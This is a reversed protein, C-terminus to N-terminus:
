EGTGRSLETVLVAGAGLPGLICNKFFTEVTLCDSRLSETSIGGVGYRCQAWEALRGFASADLELDDLLHSGPVIEQDPAVKSLHGIFERLDGSQADLTETHPRGEMPASAYTSM